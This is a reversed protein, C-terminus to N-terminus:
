QQTIVDVNQVTDDATYYWEIILNWKQLFSYFHKLIQAWIFEFKTNRQPTNDIFINQGIWITAAQSMVNQVTDDVMYCWKIILNRKVSFMKFAEINLSMYIWVKYEKTTHQQYIHKPWNLNNCSWVDVNQVTDDGM